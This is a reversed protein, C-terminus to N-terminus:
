PTPYCYGPNAAAVPSILCRGTVDNGGRMRSLSWYHQASPGSFDRDFETPNYEVEYVSLLM